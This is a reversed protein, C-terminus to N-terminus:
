LSTNVQLTVVGDERYSIVTRQDPLVPINNNFSWNINPRPRGCVRCTFVAVDGAQVRLSKLPTHVSPSMEFMFDQNTMQLLLFVRTFNNGLM